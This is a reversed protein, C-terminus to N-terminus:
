HKIGVAAYSWVKALEDETPEDDPRWLPLRVLGPEVLHVPTLFATLEDRTRPILTVSSKRAAGSVAGAAEPRLDRGLHAFILVSGAALPEILEQILEAPHDADSVHHMVSVLLMALPRRLDLVDKVGANEMISKPDRVDGIVVSTAGRGPGAMLARAHAAVIPDNDVYVVGASKNTRQAVEHVNPSTPIGTGVDLFQTLELDQACYRVARVLFQRNAKAIDRVEPAAAIGAEAAARDVAFNDKGGLLYDYVRAPHAVGTNLESTEDVGSSALANM